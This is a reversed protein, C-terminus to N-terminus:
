LSVMEDSLWLFVDDRCLLPGLPPPPEAVRAHGRDAAAAAEDMLPWLEDGDLVARERKRAM